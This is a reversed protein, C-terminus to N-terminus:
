GENGPQRGATHTIESQIGASRVSTESVELHDWDALEYVVECVLEEHAARRVRAGDNTVCPIVCELIEMTLIFFVPMFADFM